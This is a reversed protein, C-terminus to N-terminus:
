GKRLTNGHGHLAGNHHHLNGTCNRQGIIHQAPQNHDNTDDDSHHLRLAQTCQELDDWIHVVQLRSCQASRM